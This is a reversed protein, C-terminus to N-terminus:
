KDLKNGVIIFPFNEPDSPNGQNIFEKRWEELDDFTKQDTIDYVLVCCDTGRYFAAGLTQFRDQGATDWIQLSVQKDDVVVDKSMFDAGVTARYQQTFKQKVYQNMLSTKGVGSDGLILIKFIKKKGSAM